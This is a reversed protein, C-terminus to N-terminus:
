VLGLASARDRSDDAFFRALAADAEHPQLLGGRPLTWRELEEQAIVPPHNTRLAVPVHTHGHVRLAALRHNGHGVVFRHDAGRTLFHGTVYGHELPLYGSRDISRHVEVVRRLHRAGVDADVPGRYQCHPLVGPPRARVRARVHDLEESTLSWLDLTADVAPWTALVGAPVTPDLLVEHTTRPRFRDYFAELVSGAYGRDPRDLVEELAAIFPHWGDAAYSFGARNLMRDISVLFTSTGDAARTTQVDPPLLPLLDQFTGVDEIRGASAPLHDTTTRSRPSGTPSRSWLTHSRACSALAEILAAETLNDLASTGEDFFLV